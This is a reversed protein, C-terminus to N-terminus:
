KIAVAPTKCNAIGKLMIKIKYTIGHSNDHPKLLFVMKYVHVYIRDNKHCM